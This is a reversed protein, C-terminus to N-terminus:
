GIYNIVIIVMDVVMFFVDNLFFNNLCGYGCNCFFLVLIVVIVFVINKIIKKM